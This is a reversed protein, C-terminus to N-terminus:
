KQRTVAVARMTGLPGCGMRTLMGVEAYWSKVMCEVREAEVMRGDEGREGRKSGEALYWDLCGCDDRGNLGRPEM